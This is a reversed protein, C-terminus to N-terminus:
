GLTITPMGMSPATNHFNNWAKVLMAYEEDPLADAETLSLGMVLCQIRREAQESLRAYNKPKIDVIM